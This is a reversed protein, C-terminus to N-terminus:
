PAPLIALKESESTTTFFEMFEADFENISKGFAQAFAVEFGLSQVLPHFETLLVNPSTQSVLYAVGWAGLGYSMDSCEDSYDVVSALTRGACRGALEEADHRARNLMQNEFTFAYDGDPVDPMTGQEIFQATAYQAMFEASGEVFWVPGMFEDRLDRDLETIFSHQVGHWYEHLVGKVNLAGPVGMMGALGSPLSTAFFHIGWDAKGLRAAEGSPAGEAAANAGLRQYWILSHREDGSESEMCGDYDWDGRSDRRKCFESVLAVGADPDIGLVWYEVPWYLGWADTALDLSDEIAATISPDVDSAAFVAAVLPGSTSATGDYPCTRGDLLAAWEECDDMSSLPLEAEPEQIASDASGGAAPEDIEADDVPPEDSARAEMIEEASTDTMSSESKSSEACGAVALVSAVVTLGIFATRVQM